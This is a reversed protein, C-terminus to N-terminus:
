GRGGMGPVPGRFLQRLVGPALASLPNVSVRPADAPGRVTYSFGIVGEGRVRGFLEGFLGSQQLAGNLLYIPSVVGQLDLVRNRTDVVGEASLGLSQGTASAQRLMLREPTLAFAADVESFALGEGDLQELLGVVSIASLLAALAPADRVRIGRLSLSGDYRGRGGTPRLRLDLTGGAIAQSLRAARLVAGADNSLVQIATGQAAPGLRIAVPADGNVRATLQGSPGGAPDLTGAVGTLALQEGIRVADLRLSLPGAAGGGGPALGAGRLDLTGGTIAVSAPRGRGQGTLIVQADLWDGRRVRDFRAVELAGGPRLDIRGTVQLGPADLELLDIRAPAGLRGEVSLSGTATESVSWGLAPLALGIGSLDSRLSFAPAGARPLDLTLAAQGAGRVSGPPLAIGFVDLFRQSLEMRGEIRSGGAGSALPQRWEASVPLGDLALDGAVTVLANDATVALTEASLTRGPVLRDSAVDTLTARAAVTVADPTIGPVLPLAVQVAARVQGTAADTPIGGKELFGFPAHDLLALGARLSGSARIDAAAQAGPRTIDPIAFATGALAVAGAGPMDIRGETLRMQLESQTLLGHGVGDRIPPLAAIPSLQMGAVDFSVGFQPMQGPALRVGGAVRQLTGAQLRSEIWQRTPVQYAVPWLALLRDRSLEPVKFDAAVHLGDDALRLDGAARYITGGDDLWLQGLVLRGAALDIRLDAGGGAWQLPAALAGGPDVTASDLRLQALVAGASDRWVEGGLSAAVGAAAIDLVTLDLRGTRPDFQLRAQARDVTLASDGTGLRGPGVLAVEGALPRPRGDPGIDLTVRGSVAGDLARGRLGLALYGLALGDFRAEATIEPRGVPHDLALDLRGPAHGPQLLEGGLAIAIRGASRSLALQGGAIEWIQGLPVDEYILTVGRAEIRSLRDLGPRDLIHALKDALGALTDAGLEWGAGGDPDPLSLVIGGGPDRRLDLQAGEIVAAIGGSGDPALTVTPLALDLGGRAGSLAVGRLVLGPRRGAAGPSAIAANTVSLEVTGALARALRAEALAVAWGPLPLQSPRAATVVALALAALVAVSALGFLGYRARRERDRDNEQATEAMAGLPRKKAM